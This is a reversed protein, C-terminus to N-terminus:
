DLDADPVPELQGAAEWEELRRRQAAMDDRVEKLMAQYEPEDRISDLSPDIGLYMWWTERWGADITRRLSDLASETDGQLAHIMARQIGFGYSDSQSAAKSIIDLSKNLLQEGREPQGMRLLVLAVDVAFELNDTNVSPPTESILEPFFQQYRALAADFDTNRLDHNRLTALTHRGPASVINIRAFEVAGERDGRRLLSRLKTTESLRSRRIPPLFAGSGSEDM